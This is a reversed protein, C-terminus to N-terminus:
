LLRRAAKVNGVQLGHCLVIIDRGGQNHTPKSDSNPHLASPIFIKNGFDLTQALRILM